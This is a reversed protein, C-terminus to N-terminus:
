ATGNAPAAVQEAAHVVQQDLADVATPGGPIPVFWVHIMPQTVRNKSGPPCTPHAASLAGVVGQGRALCLNTHVHWQTLCGGPQPTPGHPTTIYMAAALVAGKPTNAYVLSQPDTYDLVPGGTLTARYYAPNLYHVVAAGTPTIPVYGAAKAAALSQYKSTDKWSTDVMSVAAAQQAKTPTATCPASSAMKMGPAMQMSTAPMTIDGAPSTTALKVPSTPTGSMNMGPMSGTASSSMSGTATGPGVVVFAVSLAIATVAGASVAALLRSPRALIAIAWLLLLWGAVLMLVGFLWHKQVNESAMAYDLGAAAISIIALCTLLVRRRAFAPKANYPSM